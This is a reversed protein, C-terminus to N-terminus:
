SIPVTEIGGTEISKFRQSALGDHGTLRKQGASATIV